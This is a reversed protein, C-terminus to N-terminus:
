RTTEHLRVAVEVNNVLPGLIDGAREVDEPLLERGVAQTDVPLVVDEEGAVEDNGQGNELRGQADLM